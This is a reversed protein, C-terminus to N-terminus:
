DISLNVPKKLALINELLAQNRSVDFGFEHGVNVIYGKIHEIETKRNHAIDQHMSSFNNRTAHIVNFVTGIVETVNLYVHKAQAVSIVEDIIVHIDDHLHASSLDGNPVNLLATLPNIVCNVALKTFLSPLIDAHWTVSPLVQDIITHHLSTNHDSVIGAQTEGWATHTVINDRKFGALTTTAAIIVHQPFLTQALEISGMGNHLLVITADCALRPALEALVQAVQYAKVPIIVIGSLTEQESLRTGQTLHYTQEDLWRVNVPPHQLASSKIYHKVRFGQLSANVSILAGISGQGIIHIDTDTNSSM